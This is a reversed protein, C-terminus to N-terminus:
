TRKKNKRRKRLEEEAPDKGTGGSPKTFQFILDDISRDLEKSLNEDRNESASEQSPNLFKQYAREGILKELSGVYHLKSHVAYYKGEESKILHVDKNNQSKVYDKVDNKISNFVERNKIKKSEFLMFEKVVNEPNQRKLHEM